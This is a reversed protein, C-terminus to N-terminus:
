KTWATLRAQMTKPKDTFLLHGLTRAQHRIQRRRECALGLLTEVSRPECDRADRRICQALEFLDHDEGALDSLRHLESRWLDIMSPWLGRLLKWQYRQYKVRKRWKHWDEPVADLTARQQAKRGRRYTRGFGEVMVATKWDGHPWDGINDRLAVIGEQLCALGDREDTEKLENKRNRRLTCRIPRLSVHDIHNGFYATLRDYTGIAAHADRLDSYARALDRVSANSASYWREDVPRFLRLLARIKKARKRFQHVRAHVSVEADSADSLSKELQERAIRRCEMDLPAQFNIVYAM